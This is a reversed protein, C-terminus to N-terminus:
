NFLAPPGTSCSRRREAPGGKYDLKDCDLDQLFFCHSNCHTSHSLLVTAICSLKAHNISQLTFVLFSLVYGNSSGADLTVQSFLFFQVSTYSPLGPTGRYISPQIKNKEKRM